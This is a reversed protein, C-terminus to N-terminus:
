MGGCICYGTCDGSHHIKWDQTDGNSGSRRWCVELRIDQEADRQARTITASHIEVHGQMTHSILYFYWNWECSGLFKKVASVDILIRRRIKRELHLLNSVDSQPCSASIQTFYQVKYQIQQYILWYISQTVEQHLSPRLFAVEGRCKSQLKLVVGTQDVTIPRLQLLSSM